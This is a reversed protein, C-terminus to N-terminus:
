ESVSINSEVHVIVTEEVKHKPFREIFARVNQLYAYDHGNFRGDSIMELCEVFADLDIIYKAM